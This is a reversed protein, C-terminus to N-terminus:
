SIFQNMLIILACALPGCLVLGLVWLRMKAGIVGLSMMEFGFAQLLAVSCLVLLLLMPSIVLFVLSVIGYIASVAALTHLGVVLLRRSQASKVSQVVLSGILPVNTLDSTKM